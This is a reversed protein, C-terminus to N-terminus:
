QTSNEMWWTIPKVLESITASPDKKKLNWRHVLYKYPVTSTTTMDTVQIMFYGVRPDDM